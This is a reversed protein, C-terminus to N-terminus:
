VPRATPYLKRGCCAGNSGGMIALHQSDTVKRNVLDQAIALFDDFARQRNKKKAAKHWRPGFEGGGRINAIAFAGGRELWLKGFTTMYRPTMSIEFGGYGYLLTPLQKKGQAGKPLVLFYPIMEGDPSKVQHQEVRVGTVDFRKPLSKLKPKATKRSYSYLQDPTTFDTFRIFM